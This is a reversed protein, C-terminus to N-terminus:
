EPFKMRRVLDRFRADSRLSDLQPDVKLYVMMAAHTRYGIELWSFAEDKKGLALYIRALMCPTVYQDKSLEELKGLIRYAEDLYGAAAYVEGLCALCLTSGPLLQTGKKSATIAAEYMSKRMYAFGILFHVWSFNSDFELM